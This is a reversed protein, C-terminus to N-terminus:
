FSVEATWRDTVVQDGLVELESTPVRNICWLYLSSAPGRLAVDAKGHTRETSVTAGPGLRFLWEGEGDIRHLHLSQGTWSDPRREVCSPLVNARFEDIGDCALDGDIPEPSGAASQADWAHVATELASRRFWFLRTHPPWFTWCESDPDAETLADSVRRAQAAAWELLEDGGLGEPAGAFDQREGSQVAGASWGWAWGTHAVLDAVEWGPCAPV